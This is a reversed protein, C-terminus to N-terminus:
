RQILKYEAKKLLRISSINANTDFTYSYIRIISNDKSRTRLIYCCAIQKIELEHDQELTCYYQFPHFLQYVAFDAPFGNKGEIVTVQGDYEFTLDIEMQLNKTVITQTGIQYEFSHKTRRALYVKPMAIIDDFLFDHIIRQNSAISLINSESTDFENLLSQRYPWDHTESPLIPEFNHYGYAIGKVFQHYGNGLHVIFHDTKKVDDPLLSSNDIKTIDFPNGFSFTKCVEKVLNNHFVFNDQSQCKEFLARIVDQKKGM